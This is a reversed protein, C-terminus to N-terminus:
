HGHHRRRGRHGRHLPAKPAWGKIGLIDSVEPYHNTCLIRFGTEM